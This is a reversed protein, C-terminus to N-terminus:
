QHTQADAVKIPVEEKKQWGAIADRMRLAEKLEPGDREALISKYQGEGWHRPALKTEM